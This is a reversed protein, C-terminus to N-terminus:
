DQFEGRPNAQLLCFRYCAEPEYLDEELMQLRRNVWENCSKKLCVKSPPAAFLQQFVVQLGYLCMYLNIYSHPEMEYM